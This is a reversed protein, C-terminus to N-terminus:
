LVDRVRISVLGGNEDVRLDIDIMVAAVASTADRYFAM